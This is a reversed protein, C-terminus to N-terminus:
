PETHGGMIRQCAGAAADRSGYHRGDLGALTPSEHPIGGARDVCIWVRHWDSWCVAIWRGDPRRMPIAASIEDHHFGPAPIQPAEPFHRRVIECQEKIACGHVGAYAAEGIAADRNAAYVGELRANEASRPAALAFAVAAQYAASDVGGRYDAAYLKRFDVSGVANGADSVEARHDGVRTNGAAAAVLAKAAVAVAEAADEAADKACYAAATGISVTRTIDALDVAGAAISAARAAFAADDAGRAVGHALDPDAGFAVARAAYNAAYHPDREEANDLAGEGYYVVYADYAAESAARVDALTAEGRTWREAADIAALPRGDDEPVHKIVTRAIECACLVLKRHANEDLPRKALLWLLWDSRECNRWATALSPQTEAWRALEGDPRLHWIESLASM